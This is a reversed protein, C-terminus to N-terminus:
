KREGEDTCEIPFDVGPQAPYCWASNGEGAHDECAFDWEVTRVGLHWQVFRHLQMEVGCEPCPPAEFVVGHQRRM